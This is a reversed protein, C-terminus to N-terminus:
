QSAQTLSASVSDAKKIQEHMSQDTYTKLNKFFELDLDSVSLIAIMADKGALAAVSPWNSRSDICDNQFKLLIRTDIHVPCGLQSISKLIDSSLYM